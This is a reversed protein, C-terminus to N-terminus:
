TRRNFGSKVPAKKQPEKQGENKQANKLQNRRDKEKANIAAIKQEKATLMASDPGSNAAHRESEVRNTDIREELTKDIDTFRNKLSNLVELNKRANQLRKYPRTGETNSEADNEKGSIYKETKEIAKQIKEKLSEAKASLEYDRKEGNPDYEEDITDQYFAGKFNKMFDTVAKMSEKMEDYKGSGGFFKKDLDYTATVSKKLKRYDETFLKNFDRDMKVLLTEKAKQAAYAANAKKTISGFLNSKEVIKTKSDNLVDKEIALQGTFSYENLKDDDVVRPKGDELFGEVSDKYYNVSKNIEKKLDKLRNKAGEIEEQKLDFAYLSLEFDKENMNLIKEATSKPIIKMSSIPMAFGYMPDFKKAFSSDNDIAKIGVLKGDDNVDFIINGVHRDEHGCLFDLIQLNAVQSTLEANDEVSCLSLKMFNDSNSMKNIDSGYVPDMVTGKIKQVGNKGGPVLLNISESHAIVNECGLLGAVMSMASNKRDNRAKEEVGLRDDIVAKSEIKDLQSLYENFINFKLPTKIQSLSGSTTFEKLNSVADKLGYMSLMRGPSNLMPKYIANFDNNGSDLLSRVARQISDTKLFDANRGYKREMEAMLRNKKEEMGIGGESETFFTKVKDNGRNVEVRLRSNQAAQEVEVGQLGDVSVKLSRSSELIETLNKAANADESVAKKYKRLTNVDKGMVVLFKSYLAKTKDNIKEDELEENLLKVAKGYLKILEDADNVTLKKEYLEGYKLMIKEIPKGEGEEIDFGALLKTFQDVRREIKKVAM